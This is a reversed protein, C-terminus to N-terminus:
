QYLQYNKFISFSFFYTFFNTFGAKSFFYKKLRQFVRKVDSPQISRSGLNEVYLVNNYKSLRTSIEHHIQWNIDWDISSFIIFNKNKM